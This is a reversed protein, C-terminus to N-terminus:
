IKNAEILYWQARISVAKFFFSSSPVALDTPWHKVLQAVPAGKYISFAVPINHTSM